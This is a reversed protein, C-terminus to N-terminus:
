VPSAAHELVRDAGFSPQALLLQERWRELTTAYHATIDELALMRFDTVRAVLRSIVEMSPLCGGPFIYTNIFSKGAKEVQYASPTLGAIRV